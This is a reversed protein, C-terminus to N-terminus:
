RGLADYEFTQIMGPTAARVPVNWTPHWETLVSQAPGAGVTKDRRIQRNLTDYTFRTDSGGHGIRRTLNGLADYESSKGNAGCGPCPASQGAPLVTNGVSTFSFDTSTANGKVTETIRTTSGNPYTVDFAGTGGAEEGHVVRGDAGYAFTAVRVGKEDTIGTLGHLMGANEYHYKRSTGDQWTVSTLQNNGAMGSALNAAEEYQYRIPQAGTNPTSVQAIRGKVDYQFTLTRGFANRVTTLKGNEPGTTGYTLQTVQSVRNKVVTLRGQADYQESNGTSSDLYTFGAAADGTLADHTSISPTWTGGGSRRFMITQGQPRMVLAVEGGSGDGGIARVTGSYNHSWFGGFGSTTNGPWQSRYYRTLSLPDAGAGAYDVQRETQVGTAPLVPDKVATCSSEQALPIVMYASHWFNTCGTVGIRRVLRIYTSTIQGERASWGYTGPTLDPRDVKSLTWGTDDSIVDVCDKRSANQGRWFGLIQDPVNAATVEAVRPGMCTYQAWESSSEPKWQWGHVLCNFYQSWRGATMTEDYIGIQVGQAKAGAAFTLALLLFVLIRRM